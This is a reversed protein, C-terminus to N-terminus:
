LGAQDFRYFLKAVNGREMGEAPYFNGSADADVLAYDKSFQVYKSYWVDNPTDNYPDTTSVVGTLDVGSTELFIKLMEVKNVQQDPKFTGDGYGEIIGEHQGTRLYTMYWANIIVDSFGLDTGDDPLIPINFGLLIVKTTEARNIIDGPRFTGDAYGDFIGENKVYTIAPCIPDNYSVDSFGACDQQNASFDVTVNGKQSAYGESNEAYIEFEYTKETVFDNNNDTGDWVATHTGSTQVGSYVEKVVDTGDLIEIRVDSTVNLDYSLTTTDNLGDGDPSFTNPSATSSHVEPQTAVDGDAEIAGPDTIYKADEDGDKPRPEGFYDNTIEALETGKDICESGEGLEYDNENLSNVNTLLPNCSLDNASMTHGLSGNDYYVNYDYTASGVLNVAKSSNNAIVNNMFEAGTTGSAVYIGTGNNVITNNYAKSNDRINVGTGSAKTVINNYIISNDAVINYFGVNDYLFNHHIESTSPNGDVLIGGGFAEVQHIFNNSIDVDDGDEAYVAIGGGLTTCDVIEIESININYNTTNDGDDTNVNIVSGAGSSQDYIKLGSINSNINRVEITNDSGGRIESQHNAVDRDDFNNYYGGYLSIDKGSLELPFTENSYDGEAIYIQYNTATGNNAIELAKTITQVPNAKDGANTDVGNVDDVYLPNLIYVPVFPEIVFYAGAPLVMTFFMTIGVFVTMMRRMKNM